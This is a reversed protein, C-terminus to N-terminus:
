YVLVQEYWKPFNEEKKVTLGILIEKEGAKKASDVRQGKAPAAQTPNQLNNLDLVKYEGAFTDLYSKLSASTIVLSKEGSFGRFAVNLNVDKLLNEDVVVTV